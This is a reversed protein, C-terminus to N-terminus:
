QEGARRVRYRLEVPDDEPAPRPHEAAGGDIREARRWPGLESTSRPDRRLPLSFLRTPQGPWSVALLRSSTKFALSVRGGIVAAGGDDVEWAPALQAEDMNKPTHLEVRVASPDPAPMPVRIQLELTPPLTDTYTDLTLM